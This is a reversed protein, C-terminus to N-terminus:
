LHARIAFAVQQEEVAPIAPFRVFDPWGTPGDISIATDQKASVAESARYIENLNQAVKGLSQELIKGLTPSLHITGAVLYFVERPTRQGGIKTFKQIAMIGEDVYGLKAEENAHVIEFYVVPEGSHMGDQISSIEGRRTKENLSEYGGFNQYFPSEAFYDIANDPRLGQSVLFSQDRFTLQHPDSTM